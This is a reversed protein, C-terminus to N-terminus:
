ALVEFACRTRPKSGFTPKSSPSSSSSLLYGRNGIRNVWRRDPRAAAVRTSAAHRLLRGEARRRPQATKAKM